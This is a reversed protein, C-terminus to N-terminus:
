TDLVIDEGDNWAGNSNADHFLIGLLDGVVLLQFDAADGNNLSSNGVLIVTDTASNYIGDITGGELVLADGTSWKNNNDVDFMLIDYTRAGSVTSEFTILANGDTVVQAGPLGHATSTTGDGDIVSDTDSGYSASFAPDHARSLTANHGTSTAASHSGAVSVTPDHWASVAGDHSWSTAPDHEKSFFSDHGLSVKVDHAGGTSIAPDHYNSRIGDHIWTTRPDHKKSLYPDHGTSIDPAHSGSI